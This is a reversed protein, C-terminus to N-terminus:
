RFGKSNFRFDFFLATAALVYESVQLWLPMEWVGSEVWGDLPAYASLVAVSWILAARGGVALELPLLWGLYWPHVQPSLLLVSWVLIRIARAPAVRRYLLVSVLALFITVVLVRAAMGATSNPLAQRCLWDVLAFASENGQWRTVFQTPGSASDGPTRSVVLPALLLASGVATALLV